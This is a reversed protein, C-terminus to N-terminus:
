DRPSDIAPGGYGESRIGFADAVRNYFGFLAADYVAEAIQEDSWGASRAAEVLEDHVAYPRVTIIRVLELLAREAPNIPAEDLRDELLCQIM